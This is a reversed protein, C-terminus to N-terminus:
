FCRGFQFDEKQYIQYDGKWHVEKSSSDFDKQESLEKDHFIFHIRLELCGASDNMSPSQLLDSGESPHVRDIHLGGIPDISEGRPVSV